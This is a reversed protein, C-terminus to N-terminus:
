LHTIYYAFGFIVSVVAMAWLLHRIRFQWNNRKWESILRPLTNVVIFPLLVAAVLCLIFPVDVALKKLGELIEVFTTM